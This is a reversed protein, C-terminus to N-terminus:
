LRERCAMTTDTDSNVIGSALYSAWGIVSGPPFPNEKSIDVVSQQEGLLASTQPRLDTGRATRQIKPTLAFAM